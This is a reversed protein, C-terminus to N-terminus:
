RYEGTHGLSYRGPQPFVALGHPQLGVPIRAILQGNTTDIAYVNSDYRGTLWLVKGDASVGGMDPSSRGPIPWRAVIKGTAFSFVAISGQGTQLGRNTVYLLRGDRSPYLGHPGLGTPVFGTVKFTDPDIEWMGAVSQDAVYFVQGDPSARIDQPMAGAALNLYSVIQQSAIDIKVLRASFECTAIAYRGDATFEMHDVGPCSVPVSRALAMSHPDRFDLRQRAEAVVIAYRGDPTFYMNYPDDVPITQGPRGTAPDFVTVSNCDDNLVWLTRLDWSPVVHQPNCGVTYTAVVRYSGPDIVSVTDGGSNPVYVLSPYKQVSPALMGAQDAAYLNGGIVPPMGSLLGLGSNAPQPRPTTSPHPDASVVLRRSSSSRGSQLGLVLAVVIAALVLVTRTLRRRQRRSMRAPRCTPSGGVAFGASTFRGDPRQDNM